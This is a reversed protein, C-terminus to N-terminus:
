WWSWCTNCWTLVILTLSITNFAGRAPEPAALECAVSLGGYVAVFWVCWVTLGIVLQAPHGTSLKMFTQKM